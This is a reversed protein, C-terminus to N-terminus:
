YLSSLRPRTTGLFHVKIPARIARGSIHGGFGVLLFRLLEESNLPPGRKFGFAKWWGDEAWVALGRQRSQWLTKLYVASM